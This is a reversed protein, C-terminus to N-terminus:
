QNWAEEPLKNRKGVININKFLNTYRCAHVFPNTYHTKPVQSVSGPPIPIGGQNPGSNGPSHVQFVPWTALPGACPLFCFLSHNFFLYLSTFTHTGTRSCVTLVATFTCTCTFRCVPTHALFQLHTQTNKHTLSCHVLLFFLWSSLSLSPWKGKGCMMFAKDERERQEGGGRIVRGGERWQGGIREEEGRARGRKWM